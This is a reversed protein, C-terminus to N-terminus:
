LLGDSRYRQAAAQRTIGLADGIVAWSVGAARLEAVSSRIRADITAAKLTDTRLEDVRALLARRREAEGRGYSWGATAVRGGKGDSVLEVAARGGPGLVCSM